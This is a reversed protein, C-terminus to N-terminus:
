DALLLLTGPPPECSARRLVPVRLETLSTGLLQGESYGLLREASLSVASIARSRDALVFPDGAAFATPTNVILGMECSDCV